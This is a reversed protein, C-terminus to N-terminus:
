HQLAKIDSQPMFAVRNLLEGTSCEHMMSVRCLQHAGLPKAHHVMHLVPSQSNSAPPTVLYFQHREVVKLLLSHIVQICLVISIVCTQYWFLECQLWIRIVNSWQHRGLIM